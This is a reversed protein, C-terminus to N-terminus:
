RDWRLRDALWKELSMCEGTLLDVVRCLLHVTWSAGESLLGTATERHGPETARLLAAQSADLALAYRAISAGPTLVAHHDAGLLRLYRGARRASPCPCNAIGIIPGDTRSRLLLVARAEEATCRSLDARHPSGQYETLGRRRLMRLIICSLWSGTVVKQGRGYRRRIRNSRWGEVFVLQAGMSAALRSAAFIRSVNQRFQLSTRRLSRDFEEQPLFRSFLRRDERDLRVSARFFPILLTLTSQGQGSGM